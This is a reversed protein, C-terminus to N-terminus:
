RERAGDSMGALRLEHGWWRGVAGFELGRQAQERLDTRRHITRAMTRRDQDPTPRNLNVRAPRDIGTVKVEGATPLVYKFRQHLLM